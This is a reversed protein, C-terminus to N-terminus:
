GLKVFVRILEKLVVIGNDGQIATPSIKLDLATGTVMEALNAKTYSKMVATVGETDTGPTPSANGALITGKVKGEPAALRNPLWNIERGFTSVGAPFRLLPNTDYKKCILYFDHLLRAYIEDVEDNDTGYFHYKSVYSRLEEHGEWNNRLVKMFDEFLIKGEDFVLKKIAYFSNVTDAVGGIHPSVVTYIPGGEFYSKAREICGQEFLSVVSTPISPKWNWDRGPVSFTLFTNVIDESIQKITEDLCSVYTEYMSQFSTYNVNEYNKLTQHQLLALSDFPCYQFFTKGPVQV